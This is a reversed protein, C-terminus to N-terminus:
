FTDPAEDSPAGYLYGNMWTRWSGREDEFSYPNDERTYGCEAATLGAEFDPDLQKDNAILYVEVWAQVDAPAADVYAFLLDITEQESISVGLNALAREITQRPTLKRNARVYEAVQKRLEPGLDANKADLYALVAGLHAEHDNAPALSQISRRESLVKTVWVEGERAPGLRAQDEKFAADLGAERLLTYVLRRQVDVKWGFREATQKFLESPKM